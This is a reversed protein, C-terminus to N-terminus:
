PDKQIEAFSKPKMLEAQLWHMVPDDHYEGFLVVDAERVAELLDPWAVPKGADDFLAYARPSDAMAKSLARAQAVGELAFLFACIFLINKM